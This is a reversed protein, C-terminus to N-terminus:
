LRVDVRGSFVRTLGYGRESQALIPSRTDMVEDPELGESGTLGSTGDQDTGSGGTGQELSFSLGGSGVDFGMDSLARRLADAGRQMDALVEPRNSSLVAEVRNDASVELKVQVKGLEAPDLRIEFRTGGGQVRQAMAAAFGALGAQDLRPTNHQALSAGKAAAGNHALTTKLVHAQETGQPAIRGDLGTDILGIPQPDIAKTAAGHRDASTNALTDAQTTQALIASTVTFPTRNATGANGGAGPTTGTKLNGSQASKAKAGGKSATRESGRLRPTGEQLAEPSVLGQMLKSLSPTTNKANQGAIVPGAKIAPATSPPPTVQGKPDQGAIVPGAKIAPTTSPSPVTKSKAGQGAIVPGAKIAPTTSPQPAIQGKLDQGAIVAGVKIAPTTSPPPAIQGKPDQGAIVPGAKIAPTTSPLPSAAGKPDQGAIVPGATISSMTSPQPAPSGKPDLGGIGPGSKIAPTSTIAAVSALPPAKAAIAGEVSITNANQGSNFKGSAPNLGTAAASNLLDSLPAFNAKGSQSKTNVLSIIANAPMAAAVILNAPDNADTKTNKITGAKDGVLTQVGLTLTKGKNQVLLSGSAATGSAKNHAKTQQSTDLLQAFASKKDANKPLITKGGVSSATGTKVGNGSTTTLVSLDLSM